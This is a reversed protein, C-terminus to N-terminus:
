AEKIGRVAIYAASAGIAGYALRSAASRRGFIAGIPDFNALGVLGLCIAGIGVLAGAAQDMVGVRGNADAIATSNKKRLKM